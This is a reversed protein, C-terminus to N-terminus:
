CEDSKQKSKLAAIRSRLQRNEEALDSIGTNLKTLEDDGEFTVSYKKGYTNYSELADLIRRIPRIYYTLIFFLLLALLLMGVGFAIIVPTVTRYYVTSSLAIGSRSFEMIALVVTLVLVLAIVSISLILKGRM